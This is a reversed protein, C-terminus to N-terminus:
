LNSVFLKMLQHGALEGLSGKGAQSEGFSELGDGKIGGGCLLLPVPDGSHAKLECPTSHDATIVLVVDKLDIKPLLNGFFYKDIGEISEKKKESQKYLSRCKDCQCWINSDMPMVSFIDGVAAARPDNLKGDFFDRADQVVQKLVEPNSLCLQNGLKPKGEAFWEPHISGFRKYYGYFSHSSMFLEGGVKLRRAWWLRKSPGIKGPYEKDKWTWLTKPITDWHNFVRLRVSPQRRINIDGISIRNKEPVVEGIKGPLYWRVGCYKELFTDVAYISGIRQYYKKTMCTPVGAVSAVEAVSGDKGMLVLDDGVTRILYEQEKFDDNRLGLARTYRSEGVLLKTGPVHSEDDVIPLEAGTMKKVYRRLERAADAAADVAGKGVVITARAKGQDVLVTSAGTTAQMSLFVAAWCAILLAIKNIQDVPPTINTRYAGIRPKSRM